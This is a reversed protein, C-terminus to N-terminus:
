TQSNSATEESATLSNRIELAAKLIESLAMIIAGGVIGQVILAITVYEPVPINGTATGGPAMLAFGLFVGGVFDLAAIWNLFTCVFPPKESTARM